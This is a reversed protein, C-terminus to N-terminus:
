LRGALLRLASHAGDAACYDAPSNTELRRLANNAQFDSVFLPLQDTYTQASAKSTIDGHLAIM